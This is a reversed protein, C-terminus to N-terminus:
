ICVYGGGSGYSRGEKEEGTDSYRRGMQGQQSDPGGRM